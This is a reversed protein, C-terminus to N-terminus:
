PRFVHFRRRFLRLEVVDCIEEGFPAPAIEIEACGIRARMRFSDRGFELNSKSPHAVLSLVPEIEGIHPVVALPILDEKVSGQFFAQCGDSIIRVEQRLSRIPIM